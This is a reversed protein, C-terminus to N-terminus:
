RKFNGQAISCQNLSKDVYPNKIRIYLFKPMKRRTLKYGVITGKAIHARAEKELFSKM